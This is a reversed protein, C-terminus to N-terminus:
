GCFVGWGGGGGGGWKSIRIFVILVALINLQLIYLINSTIYIYKLM